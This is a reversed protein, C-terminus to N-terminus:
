ALQSSIPQLSTSGSDRLVLGSAPDDVDHEIRILFELPYFEIMVRYKDALFIAPPGDSSRAAKM